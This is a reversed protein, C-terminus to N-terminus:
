MYDFVDYGHKVPYVEYSKVNPSEELRDIFEIYDEFTKLPNDITQGDKYTHRIRVCNFTFESRERTERYYERLTQFTFNEKTIKNNTIM